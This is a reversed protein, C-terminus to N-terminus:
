PTTGELATIRDTLTQIIAQQEECRKVLETIVSMGAMKFDNEWLGLYPSEGEPTPLANSECVLEPALAQLEQAIVGINKIEDTQDNYLWTKWEISKFVNWYSQVPEIDHKLRLDSALNFNNASYNAVGGNSRVSFKESVTDYCYLFNQSTNNPAAASYQIVLGWPTSNGTNRVATAWRGNGTTGVLAHDASVGAVSITSTTGVLLNGSSDLVMRAAGATADWFYLDGGFGALDYQRTSNKISLFPYNATNVQVGKSWGAPNSVSTGGVLLNGSADLTMAQTLSIAAGATGSAATFWQHQGSTQVYYSANASAIYRAGGVSDFYTNATMYAANLYGVFAANKIQLAQAGSLAWTAPTVGIGVNQSADVTVATTGGTQLQLITSTDATTILGSSASANITTAM